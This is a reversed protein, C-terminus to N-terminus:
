YAAARGAYIICERVDGILGDAVRKGIDLGREILRKSPHVYFLHLARYLLIFHAKRHDSTIKIYVDVKLLYRRGHRAYLNVSSLTDEKLVFSRRCFDNHLSLIVNFHLLSSTRRNLVGAAKDVKM